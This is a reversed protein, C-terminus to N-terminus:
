RCFSIDFVVPRLVEFRLLFGYLMAPAADPMRFVQRLYVFISLVCSTIIGLALPSYFLRQQNVTESLDSSGNVFLVVNMTCTIIGIPICGKRVIVLAEWGLFCLSASITMLILFPYISNPDFLQKGYYIDVVLLFTSFTVLYRSLPAMLNEKSFPNDRKM